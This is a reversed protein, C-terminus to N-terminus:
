PERMADAKLEGKSRCNDSADLPECDLESFSGKDLISTFSFFKGNETVNSMSLISIHKQQSHKM